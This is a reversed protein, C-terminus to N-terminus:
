ATGGTDSRGPMVPKYTGVLFRTRDGRHRSKFYELPTDDEMYVTSEILMLPTGPEINLLEAEFENAAIAEMYQKAKAITLDYKEGLLQYLSNHVLDDDVLTPCIKHPVYSTSVLIPESFASRVRDLVIVPEDSALRLEQAVFYPPIVIEQRLVRTKIPIGQESMSGTFPSGWHISEVMKPEAVFTGRGKERRLLGENVLADIAERVTTRSLDFAECLERESPLRENVAWRGAVIEDRLLERLQYHYPIPVERDIAETLTEPLASSM